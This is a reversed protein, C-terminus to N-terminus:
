AAHAAPPAPATSDRLSRRGRVRSLMTLTPHAQALPPNFRMRRCARSSGTRPRRPPQGRCRTRAAPRRPKRGSDHAFGGVPAGRARARGRRSRGCRAREAILLTPCRPTEVAIGDRAENLVAGSEDRWRRLAYLRAADDADPMARRTSALSRERAWPVIAPKPEYLPRALVGAPPLPNILVLAVPKVRQAASLALLGGLSAGALVVAGRAGACWDMVQSRYDMFSTKEIGALEADPGARDRRFRAAGARAGLHGMGLRRRRCRPRSSPSLGSATKACQTKVRNRSPDLRHARHPEHRGAPM